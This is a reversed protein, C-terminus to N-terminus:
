RLVPRVAGTKLSLCRDHFQFHALSIYSVDRLISKPKMAPEDSGTALRIGATSRGHFDFIRSDKTM